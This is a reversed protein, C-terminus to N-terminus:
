SHARLVYGPLNNFLHSQDLHNSLYSRVVNQVQSTADDQPDNHVVYQFNFGDLATESRHTAINAYIEPNGGSEQQLAFENRQPALTRILLGGNDLIWQAENPFRCDTVLVVDLRDGRIKRLKIWTELTKVWIDPGYLDRGSETGELQLLRRLEPSKNGVLCQELQVNDNRSAVNVKIQDAFAMRSIAVDPGLLPCLINEAIYDKGSGLKGSVAILLVM